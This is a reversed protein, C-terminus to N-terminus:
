PHNLTVYIHRRKAIIKQIDVSLRDQPQLALAYPATSRALAAALSEKSILMVEDVGFCGEPIEEPTLLFPRDGWACTRLVVGKKDIVRGKLARQLTYTKGSRCPGILVVVYGAALAARVGLVIMARRLRQRISQSNKFPSELTLLIPAIQHEEVPM